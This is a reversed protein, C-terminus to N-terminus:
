AAGGRRLLVALEGRQEDAKGVPQRVGERRRCGRPQAGLGKRRLRDALQEARALAAAGRRAAPRRAAPKRRPPHPHAAPQHAPHGPPAQQALHEREQQRGTSGRGSRGRGGRHGGHDAAHRRAADLREELRQQPVRRRRPLALRRPEPPSGTAGRGPGMPLSRPAWQHYPRRSVCSRSSRAGSREEDAVACSTSEERRRRM